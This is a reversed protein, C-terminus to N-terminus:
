FRESFPIKLVPESRTRRGGDCTRRGDRETRSKWQCILHAKFARTPRSRVPCGVAVPTARHDLLETSDHGFPFKSGQVRLGPAVGRLPSGCSREPLHSVPLTDSTVDLNKTEARNRRALPPQEHSNNSHKHSKALHNFQGVGRKASDITCFQFFDVRGESRPAVFHRLHINQNRSGAAAATSPGCSAACRPRRGHRAAMTFAERFSGGVRMRSSRRVPSKRRGRTSRARHMNPM